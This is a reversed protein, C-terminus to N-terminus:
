LVMGRQELRKIMQKHLREMRELAEQFKGQAKLQQCLFQTSEELEAVKGHLEFISIANQLHKNGQEEEQRAYCVGALVRHVKGNVPHHPPLLERAKEAYGWTEAYSRHDLCVQAIDAYVSGAKEGSVNAEYKRAIQILEDVAQRWDGEKRKLLLLQRKWDQKRELHDQEDLLSFAITAYEDAKKFNGQRYHVDALRLFMSGREEKNAQEIQLAQEYYCTAEEVKGVEEALSALQILACAHLSPDIAQEKKLERLAKESHYMAVSFEKKKRFVTGIQLLTMALREHHQHSYAWEYLEELHIMAEAENGLEIQCVALEHLVDMRPVPHHHHHLLELLLPQATRYERARVMSKAMKFKSTYELHLAVDELLHDLSVDLREAIANLIKYSPRARDSEIQSIMSPTCLGQAVEIQTIGKQMRLYKIRQGLSKMLDEELKWGENYISYYFLKKKYCKLFFQITLAFRICIDRLHDSM